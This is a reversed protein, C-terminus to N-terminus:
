ALQEMTRLFSQKLPMIIGCVEHFDLVENSSAAVDAVPRCPQVTISIIGQEPFPNQRNVFGNAQPIIRFVYTRSRSKRNRKQREPFLNVSAGALLSVTAHRSRLFLHPPAFHLIDTM